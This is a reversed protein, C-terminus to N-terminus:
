AANSHKVGEVSIGLRVAAGLVWLEQKDTLVEPWAHISQKTVGIADAMGSQTGGFLKIADKKKM